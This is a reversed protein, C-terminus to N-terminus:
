PAPLRFRFTAGRGPVSEARISGGHRRLIRQVIALGVGSGEFGASSPLRQFVGFLNEAHRSDFGVGNDCVGYEIGSGLRESTIEIRPRSQKASYKLANGVLNMWVQRLLTADGRVPLINGVVVEAGLGRGAGLDRLVADVTGKMDVPVFVVAGRGTRSFEFLAGIMQEMRAANAEIEAAYDLAGDNGDKPLTERLLEAFGAIANLPQRLDHSVSFNYSDLEQNAEELEATRERVKQDLTSNLQRVSADARSRELEAAARAGFIEIMSSWFSGRDIPNRSMVVLIGLATGDAAFLSTGVYGQVNLKSLGADRPFQTAVGEPFVVTGRREIALICPSGGLDYEFNPEIRGDALFAHTRVRSRAPEVLEGVFAFDAGLERGLHEVLSRFFAAGLEASVGKAINMVLAENRLRETSDRLIGLVNGDPMPGAVTETPLERGNKHSFMRDLRAWKERLDNRPPRVVMERDSLFDLYDRGVVEERAYGFRRCFAPNVDILRGDAGGIVMADIASEFLARYRSDALTRAREAKREETVDRWCWLMCKDGDIEIVAGSILAEMDTGDARRLIAEGNTVGARAEASALFRARAQPDRFLSVNSAPRGIAEARKYGSAKEWQANAALRVGDSLRYLTVAEPSNEFLASFMQESQRLRREIERLKSVDRWSWLACDEGEIEVRAASLLTDFVTGDRRVFGAPYNSIRGEDRLRRVLNNRVGIDVWTGLAQATSGVAEERTHGLNRAWADNAELIVGDSLRTLVISEPSTEFLAAFKQEYQRVKRRLQRAETIDHVVGVIHPEGDYDVLSASISGALKRGGRARIMVPLDRVEGKSRLEAIHGERSASDDWLGLEITTRGVAQAASFGTVREFARNAAAIRGDALRVILIYDPSSDFVRSFKQEARALAVEQRKRVTIDKIVGAMTVVGGGRGYTARGYTELWRESGDPWIVREETRYESRLGKVCAIVTAKSPAVDDPHLHRLYDEYRGSFGRDPLGLLTSVDGLWDVRDEAVHWVWTVIGLVEQALRFQASEDISRTGRLSHPRAAGRGEADQPGTGAPKGPTV